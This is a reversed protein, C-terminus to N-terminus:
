GNYGYMRRYINRTLEVDELCHDGITKIDGALWFDFIQDGQTAKGRFGLFYSVADLSIYDKYNAGWELMLDLCGTRSTRQCFDRLHTMAYKIAKRWIYPVDFQKVNWGVIQPPTCLVGGEICEWFKLLLAKETGDTSRTLAHAPEDDLAWGICVIEGKMSDLAQRRWADEVHAQKYALIKDPDKYNAPAAVDEWSPKDPGPITEIDLFIRQPGM